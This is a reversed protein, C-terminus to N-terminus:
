DSYTFVALSGDAAVGVAVVNQPDVGDLQLAAALSVNAQLAAQLKDIKDASATLIGTFAAKNDSTLWADVNYTATAATDTFGSFSADTWVSTNILGMVTALPDNGSSDALASATVSGTTAAASSGGNADLSGDASAGLSLSLGNGGGSANGSGGVHLGLAQVPGAALILAVASAAAIHILKM